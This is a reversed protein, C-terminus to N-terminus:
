EEKRWRGATMMWSGREKCSNIQHSYCVFATRCHHEVGLEWWFSRMHGSCISCINVQFGANLRPMSAARGHGELVPYGGVDSDNELDSMEVLEQLM